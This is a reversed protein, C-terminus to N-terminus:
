KEKSKRKRVILLFWIFVCLFLSGLIYLWKHNQEIEVAQNNLKEAENGITFIEEWEWVQTEIIAKMKLRYTGPEIPRNNLDISYDFNSNPAMKLDSKKSSYLIEKSGKKYIKADVSMKEIIEPESNQITAAIATHYNVLKPKIGLLHLDPFVVKMTESLKIGVIYAYQNKIQINSEKSSKTNEETKKQFQIAGLLVGDYQDKPMTITFSVIKSKGSPITIEKHPEKVLNILPYKLSKDANKENTESYDILGNDNTTAFTINAEITTQKKSHNYVEIEITQTQGPSMKLDFYSKLQDIQNSPIKARVSFDVDNSSAKVSFPIFSLTLVIASLILLVSQRNIAM